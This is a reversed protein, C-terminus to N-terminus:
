VKRQVMVLAGHAGSLSSTCTVNVALGVTDLAPGSWVTQAVETVKAAFVAVTPVPDQLITEPVPPVTAVGELGVDPKV